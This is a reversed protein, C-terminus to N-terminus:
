GDGTSIDSLRTAHCYLRCLNLQSLETKQYGYSGFKDMLFKDNERALTLEPTTAKLQINSDAFLFEWSHKLWSITAMQQYTQFDQQLLQGPLGIELTHLEMSARLQNGTITPADGHQLALWLKVIGQVTWLDLIGVGQYQKPGHVITLSLHRNIESAPLAAARIPKIITKCQEKSLSTAMLPYELTKMVCFQLLYWAETHTFRGARIKDAWLNSKEWPATTQAKQNGDMAIFVGLTKRAEEVEQREVEVRENGQTNRITINGPTEHIRAYRWKNNEFIFHYYYSM